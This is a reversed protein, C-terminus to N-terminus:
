IACLFMALLALPPSEFMEFAVRYSVLVLLLGFLAALMRITFDSSGFIMVWYHLLSNFLLGNGNDAVTSRVVNALTNKQAFLKNNLIKDDSFEPGLAASDYLVMGNAICLSIKEEMWISYTGLHFLRLFVALAFVLLFGTRSHTAKAIM